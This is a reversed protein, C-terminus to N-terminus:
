FFIFFVGWWQQFLCRIKGQPFSLRRFLPQPLIISPSLVHPPVTMSRGIVHWHTLTKIEVPSAQIYTCLHGCTCESEGKAFNSKSRIKWSTVIAEAPWHGYVYSVGSHAVANVEWADSIQSSQIFHLAIFLGSFHSSSCSAGFLVSGNWLGSTAWCWFNLTKMLDSFEYGLECCGALDSPGRSMGCCMFGIM